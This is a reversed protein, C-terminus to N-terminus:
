EQKVDDSSKTEDSNETKPKIVDEKNDKKSTVDSSPKPEDDSDDTDKTKQVLEKPVEFKGKNDNILKITYYEILKVPYIKHAAGKIEKQIRGDVVEKMFSEFSINAVKNITTQKILDRIKTAVSNNVSNRTIVFMKILIPKKDGTYCKFSDQIKTKGKRVLKRLSLQQINYGVLEAIVATEGKLSTTKFLIDTNQKRPDGMLTMLNIKVDKGIVNKIDYVSTQGICQDGFLPSVIEIWRKKKIKMDSSKAKSVM